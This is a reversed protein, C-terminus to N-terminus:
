LKLTPTTHSSEILLPFDNLNQWPAQLIPPSNRLLLEKAIRMTWSEWHALLSLGDSEVRLCRKSSFISVLTLRFRRLEQRYSCRNWLDEPQWGLTAGVRGLLRWPGLRMRMIHSAVCRLMSFITPQLMISRAEMGLDVPSLLSHACFECSIWNMVLPM